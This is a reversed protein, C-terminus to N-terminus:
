YSLLKAPNEVTIKQIEEGLGFQHLQGLMEPFRTYGYSGATKGYAKTICDHGCVIQSGYGKKLLAVLGKVRDYDDPLTTVFTGWSDFGIYVGHDLIKELYETNVNRGMEPCSLYVNNECGRRLFQDQHMMLLRDPNMGCEKLAVDVVEYLHENTMPYGTHVHVSLGTENSLRAQARLADLESKDISGDENIANVACKLFGPKVDTGDIGEEVEKKFVEYMFIDDKGIYEDPRAAAVYIGTCTVLHIGSREAAEKLQGAPARLGIPSADVVAQGGIKQFANFEAVAFDIDGALSCDDSFISMGQRLGALNEMRLELMYDPIRGKFHMVQRNLLSADALVHEHMTTYGLEVPKIDGLVTTIKKM